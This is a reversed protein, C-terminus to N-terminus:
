TASVMESTARASIVESLSFCSSADLLRVNGLVSNVVYHNECDQQPAKGPPWPYEIYPINKASMHKGGGSRRVVVTWLTVNGAKSVEVEEMKCVPFTCTSQNKGGGGRGVSWKWFVTGRSIQCIAGQNQLKAYPHPTCM